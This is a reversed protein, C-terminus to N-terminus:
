SHKSVPLSAKPTYLHAKVIQMEGLMGTMMGEAVRGGVRRAASLLWRLTSASVSSEAKM